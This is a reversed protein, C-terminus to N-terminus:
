FCLNEYIMLAVAQAGAQGMRKLHRLDGPRQAPHQTQILIQPFRQGQRMVQSMRREAMGPFHSQVFTHLFVASKVVIGMGQFDHRRQFPLVRQEVADIQAPFRQFPQYLM